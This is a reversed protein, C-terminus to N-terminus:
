HRQPAVNIRKREVFRSMDGINDYLSANGYIFGNLNLKYLLSAGEDDEEMSFLVAQFAKLDSM